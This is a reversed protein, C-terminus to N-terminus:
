GHKEGREKDTLYVGVEISEGELFAERQKKQLGVVRESELRCRECSIRWCNSDKLLPGYKFGNKINNTLYSKLSKEFPLEVVGSKGCRDCYVIIINPERDM